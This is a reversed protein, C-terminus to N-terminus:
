GASRGSFTGRFGDRAGAHVAAADAGECGAAFIGLAGADGEDRATDPSIRLMRISSGVPPGFGNTDTVAFRLGVREKWQHLRHAFYDKSIQTGRYIGPFEENARPVGISLEVLTGAVDRRTVERGHGVSQAAAATAGRASRSQKLPSCQM